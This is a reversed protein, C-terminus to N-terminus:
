DTGDNTHGYLLTVMRKDRCFNLPRVCAWRIGMAINRVKGYFHMTIEHEPDENSIIRGWVMGGSKSNVVLNHM